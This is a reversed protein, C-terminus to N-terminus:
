KAIKVTIKASKAAIAVAYRWHSRSRGFWNTFTGAIFLRRARDVALRTSHGFVWDAIMTYNLLQM